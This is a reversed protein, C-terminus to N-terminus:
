LIEQLISRDKIATVERDDVDFSVRNLPRLRTGSCVRELLFFLRVTKLSM